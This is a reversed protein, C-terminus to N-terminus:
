PRRRGAGSRGPHVAFATLMAEPGLTLPADDPARERQGGSSRRRSGGAWLDRVNIRARSGPPRREHSTTAVGVGGVRREDRSFVSSGSCIYRASMKVDRGVQCAAGSRLARRGRRPGARRGAVARDGRRRLGGEQTGSPGEFFRRVQLEREGARLVLRLGQRMRPRRRLALSGASSCRGSSWTSLPRRDRRPGYEWGRVPRASAPPGEWMGISLGDTSTMDISELREGALRRSAAVSRLGRWSCRRSPGPITPRGRGSRSGAFLRFLFAVGLRPRHFASFRSFAILCGRRLRSRGTRHTRYTSIAHLARRLKWTM